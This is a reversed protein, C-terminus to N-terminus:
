VGGDSTPPLWDNRPNATEDMAVNASVSPGATAPRGPSSTWVPPQLISMLRTPVEDLGVASGIRNSNDNWMEMAETTTGDCSQDCSQDAEALEDERGSASATSQDATRNASSTNSSELKALTDVIVDHVDSLRRFLFPTLANRVLYVSQHHHILSAGTAGEMEEIDQDLEDGTGASTPLQIASLFSDLLNPTLERHNTAMRSFLESPSLSALTSPPPPQQRDDRVCDQLAQLAM